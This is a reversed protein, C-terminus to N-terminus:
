RPTKLLQQLRTSTDTDPAPTYVIMWLDPAQAVQLPTARMVLHGVLPHVIEKADEPTGMVDSHPWWAAFEPSANTLDAVM